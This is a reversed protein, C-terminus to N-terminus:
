PKIPLVDKATKDWLDNDEVFKILDELDENPTPCVARLEEVSYGHTVLHRMNFNRSTFWERACFLAHVHPRMKLHEFKIMKKSNSM